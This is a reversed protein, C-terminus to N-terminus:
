TKSNPAPWLSSSATLYELGIAGSQFQQAQMQFFSCRNPVPCDVRDTGGQGFELARIDFRDLLQNGVPGLIVPRDPQNHHRNLLCAM